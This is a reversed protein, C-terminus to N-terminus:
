STKPGNHEDEEFRKQFMIRVMVIGIAVGFFPLANYLALLYKGFFGFKEPLSSLIPIGSNEVALFILSIITGCVFGIFGGFGYYIWKM